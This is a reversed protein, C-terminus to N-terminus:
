KVPDHVADDSSREAAEGLTIGFLIVVGAWIMDAVLLHVLQMWVPALLIVNLGGLFLQAIVLGRVALVLTSTPGRGAERFQRLAVLLIFGSVVVALVPHIVRLRILFHATESLDAQFGEVLSTSPFLTDGLATIAALPPLGTAGAFQQGAGRELEAAILLPHRSKLQLEKALARVGDQEGGVLQFGGVGLALAEDILPRVEAFGRDPSWRIVPILLQALDRRSQESM